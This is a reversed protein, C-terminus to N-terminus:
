LNRREPFLSSLNGWVQEGQCWPHMKFIVPLVTHKDTTATELPFFSWRLAVELYQAFYILPSFLQVWFKGEELHFNSITWKKLHLFLHLLVMSELRNSHKLLFLTVELQLPLMLVLQRPNKSTQATLPSVEAQHRDPERLMEQLRDQLCFYTNDTNCEGCCCQCKFRQQVGLWVTIAVDSHM